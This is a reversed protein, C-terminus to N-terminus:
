GIAGDARLRSIEAQDLSLLDALIEESHEGLAPAPTLAQNSGETAIPSALQRIKGHSPHEVDVVLGRAKVQEDNLAQEVTNV